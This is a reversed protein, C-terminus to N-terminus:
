FTACRLRIYLKHTTYYTHSKHGQNKKTERLDAMYM